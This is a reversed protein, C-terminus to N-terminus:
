EQKWSQALYSSVSLVGCRVDAFTVSWCVATLLLVATAM